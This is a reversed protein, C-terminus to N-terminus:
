MYVIPDYNTSELPTYSMVQNNNLKVADRKKTVQEKIHSLVAQSGVGLIKGSHYAINKKVPTKTKSSSNLNLSPPNQLAAKKKSDLLFGKKFGTGLPVVAHTGIKKTVNKAQILRAKNAESLASGVQVSFEQAMILTKDNENKKFSHYDCYISVLNELIGGNTKDVISQFKHFNDENDLLNVSGYMDYYKILEVIFKIDDFVIEENHNEMGSYIACKSSILNKDIIENKPLHLLKDDM